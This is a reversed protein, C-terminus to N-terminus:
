SIRESEWNLVPRIIGPIAGAFSGRTTSDEMPDTITLLLLDKEYIHKQVKVVSSSLVISIMYVGANLLFGPIHCRSRYRGPNSKMTASPDIVVDSTVFVKTGDATSVHFNPSLKAGSITVDYEMEIYFGKDITVATIPAGSEDTIRAARLQAVDDGHKVKDNEKFVIEGRDLGTDAFYKQVVSGTEGDKIIRGDELLIARNCLSTIMPMQHSVFLITRGDHKGVEEMKGLCKKQFNIDGVALVEDIIMIEPELHAAVSFALRVSMGSSYRKVPTDIFQEVGSFEIIEDLKRSIERKKMGLIAGNMYINERGTLEGHFGTGVELLSGIRGHIVARGETPRTIRSLIKLLTSKGAGNRGIIGLADGKGIEMSIDRLAWFLENGNKEQKSQNSRSVLANPDEKGRKEAWWSQLDQKM